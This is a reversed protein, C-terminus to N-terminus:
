GLLVSYSAVLLPTGTPIASKSFMALQTCACGLAGPNDGTGNASRFITSVVGGTAIHWSIVTCNFAAPVTVM